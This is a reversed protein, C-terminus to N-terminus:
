QKRHFEIESVATGLNRTDRSGRILNAPRHVDCEIDITRGTANSLMVECNLTGAPVKTRKIAEGCRVTVNKKVPLFNSFRVTIDIGSSL